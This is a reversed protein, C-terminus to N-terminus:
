DNMKRMGCVRWGRTITNNNYRKTKQRTETVGKAIIKNKNKNKKHKWEKENWRYQLYENHAWSIIKLHRKMYIAGMGGLVRVYTCISVNIFAGTPLYAVCM